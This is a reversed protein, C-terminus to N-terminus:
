VSVHNWQGLDMTFAGGAIWRPRSLHRARLTVSTFACKGDVFRLSNISVVLSVTVDALSRDSFIKRRILASFVRSINGCLLIDRVFM